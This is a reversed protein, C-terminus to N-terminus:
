PTKSKQLDDEKIQSQRIGLMRLRFYKPLHDFDTIDYSNNGRNNRSENNGRNEVIIMNSESATMSKVQQVIPREVIETKKNTLLRTAFAYKLKYPNGIDGRLNKKSQYHLIEPVFTMRKAVQAASKWDRRSIFISLSLPLSLSLSLSLFLSLYLSFSLYLSLSLSLSVSLSFSLTPPLTLSFFVYM